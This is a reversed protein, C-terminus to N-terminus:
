LVLYMIIHAKSTKTMKDHVLGNFSNFLYINLFTQKQFDRYTSLKLHNSNRSITAMVLKSSSNQVVPSFYDFTEGKVKGYIWYNELDFNIFSEQTSKGTYSQTWFSSLLIETIRWSILWIYLMYLYILWIITWM